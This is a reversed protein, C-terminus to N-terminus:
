LPLWLAAPLWVSVALLLWGMALLRTDIRPRTRALSRM